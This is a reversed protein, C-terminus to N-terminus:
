NANGDGFKKIENLIEEWSFVRTINKHKMEKNWPKDLLLVSIGKEACDYAYNKNDEIMMKVELEKCIEAKTKGNSKHFDSSFIIEYKHNELHKEFFAKTKSQWNSPRSTIFFLMNNKLLKLLSEKSNKIFSLNDFLASNFFEEALIVAQDKTLPLVEWFDYTHFEEVRIHSNYKQNYLKVYGELFEVVIEDIDIGIKM